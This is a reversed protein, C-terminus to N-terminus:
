CSKQKETIVNQQNLSFDELAASTPQMSHQRACVPSPGKNLSTEKTCSELIFVHLTRQNTLPGIIGAKCVEPSKESTFLRVQLLVEWPFTDLNWTSKQLENELKLM